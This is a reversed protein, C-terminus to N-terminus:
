VLKVSLTALERVLDAYTPFVTSKRLVLVIDLGEIQPLPSHRYIERLYRKAKNRQVAGYFNRVVSVGLRNQPDHKKKWWHLSIHKSHLRQGKKFVRAFEGNKKLRVQSPM